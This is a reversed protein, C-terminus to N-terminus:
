PSATRAFLFRTPTRLALKWRPDRELAQYIRENGAGLLLVLNCRYKTLYGDFAAPSDRSHMYEEFLEEGYIDVRSDMVPRIRPHLEAIILAGDSYENYVVGELTQDRLFAVEQYPMPGGYGWSVPRHGGPSYAYGYAATCIVVVAAFAIEWRPRRRVLAQENLVRDGGSPRAGALLASLVAALSRCLIPFGVIGLHPVFRHSGISLVTVALALAVDLAPRSRLRALLGLWVLGLVVV